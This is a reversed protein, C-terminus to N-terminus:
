ECADYDVPLNFALILQFALALLMALVLGLELVSLRERPRDTRRLYDGVARLESIGALFMAALLAAAAPARAFGACGLGLTALSMVGLGLGVGLVFRALLSEPAIRCFRLARMGFLGAVGVVASALAVLMLRETIGLVRAGAGMPGEVNVAYWAVFLVPALGWAVGIAIRRATESRSNGSQEEGAM